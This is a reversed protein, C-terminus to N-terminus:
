RVRIAVDDVFWGDATAATDSGFVFRFAFQSTLYAAPVAITEQVWAGSAGLFGDLGDVYISGECGAADMVVAGDWGGAPALATWTEGGDGTVEVLGGDSSDAAQSFQHWHWFVIDVVYSGTACPALDLTPSLLGGRQCNPYNGALGTTWCRNTTATGHCGAPGTTPEGLEWPDWAGTVPADVAAHTWGAEGGNFTWAEALDTCRPGADERPADERAEEAADGDDTAEGDGGETGDERGDERGDDAGDDVVDVDGGDGEGDVDGGDADADAGPENCICLNDECTGGPLGRELCSSFCTEFTCGTVTDPQSDDDGACALYGATGAAAFLLVGQKLVRRLDIGDSGTAM